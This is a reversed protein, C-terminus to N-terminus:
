GDSTPLYDQPDVPFHRETMALTWTMVARHAADSGFILSDGLCTGWQAIEAEALQREGADHRLQRAM